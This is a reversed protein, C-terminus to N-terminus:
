FIETSDGMTFYWHAKDKVQERYKHERNVRLILPRDIEKKSFGKRTFLEEVLPNGWIWVTAEDVAKEIFFNLGQDILYSFTREDDRRAFIDIIHGRRTDDERYLKLVIYGKLINNEYYAFPFYEWDPRQLYRWNLYIRDRVVAIEYGPSCTEWLRDFPQDFELVQCIRAPSSTKKMQAKEVKWEDFNLLDNYGFTVNEFKHALQNPFGWTYPINHHALEEMLRDGVFKLLGRKQFKKDVLAGITHSATLVEDFVKLRYPVAAFHGVLHGEHEAVWILSHGSPNKDTFKWYWNELTRPNWQSPLERADLEMIEKEDGSIYARIKM